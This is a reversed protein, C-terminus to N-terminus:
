LPVALLTPVSFTDNIVLKEALLLRGDPGPVAKDQYRGVSFLRSSGELTTQYVSYSADILIGDDTQRAQVTGIIHRAYHLNYENANRLAAIRDVLMRKNDCQIIAVPLGRDYNDRPMVKYTAGDAFLELWEEFREGDLLAAYRHLLEVALENISRSSM